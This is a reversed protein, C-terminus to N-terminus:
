VTPAVRMWKNLEMGFFMRESLTHGTVADWEDVSPAGNEFGNIGNLVKFVRKRNVGYNEAHGIGINPMYKNNRRDKVQDGMPCMFGSDKLDYSAAGIFLPNSWGEMPIIVFTFSGYNIQRINVGVSMLDANPAFGAFGREVIRTLDAGGSTDTIYDVLGNDIKRALRPAVYWSILGGTIGQSELYSAATELSYYNFDGTGYPLEGGYDILRTWLGDGAAITQTDSFKDTQTLGRDNEQGFLFHAEEALDHDLDHKILARSWPSNYGGVQQDYWHAKLLEGAIFEVSEKTIYPYFLYQYLGSRRGAPMDTGPAYTTGGLAMVDGATIGATVNPESLEADAAFPLVNLQPNKAGAPTITVIHLRYVKGNTHQYLVSENVRPLYAGNDLDDDSIEIATYDVTSITAQAVSKVTITDYNVGESHAEYFDNAFKFEAAMNRMQQVMTIGYGFEQYLEMAISPKQAFDFTSTFTNNFRGQTPQSYAAM